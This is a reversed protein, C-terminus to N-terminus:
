QLDKKLCFIFYLFCFWDQLFCLVKFVFQLQLAENIENQFWEIWLNEVQKNTKRKVIKKIYLQFNFYTNDDNLLTPFILIKWLARLM